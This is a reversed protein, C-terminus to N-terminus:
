PKLDFVALRADLTVPTGYLGALKEICRGDDPSRAVHRFQRRDFILYRAGSQRVGSFDDLFVFKRFRFRRDRPPVEGFRPGALCLDHVMGLTERQRHYTAYYAFANYPAEFVFPAEIVSTSGPAMRGLTRYFEPPDYAPERRKAEMWRVRYDWHHDIHAYWPGLTAVQAIAPTAYLYAGALVGCAVWAAAEAHRRALARVIGIVGISGFFLVLPQLPLQYRLFNQGSQIWMAGSLALVLGPIVGLAVLYAALRADRRFMVVVGWAAILCAIVVAPTPVGGWIIAAMRELADFGPQDGGAKAALSGRDHILPVALPLAMAGAVAAGLQFSRWSPRPRVDGRALVDEVFVFLCAIAAYLGTIPHLWASLAATLAACAGMRWSRRTRWRWVAAVCLVCLLLTIAYPRAFRSWMVLFPAAAVLFAFLAAAPADRTARWALWAAVPVLAIGCVVQPARLRGEALGLSDAMAKYFLTLPISHDYLGFSAFIEGYSATALKHIAHWEDDLVVQATIGHTRLWVALVTAIGAAVLLAARPDRSVVKM